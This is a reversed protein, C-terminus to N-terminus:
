TQRNQLWDRGDGPYFAFGGSNSLIVRMGGGLGPVSFSDVTTPSSRAARGPTPFRLHPMLPAAAQLLRRRRVRDHGARGPFFRGFYEADATVGARWDPVSRNGRGASRALPPKGASSIAGTSRIGSRKRGPCLPRRRQEHQRDGYVDMPRLRLRHQLLLRSSDVSTDTGVWVSLTVSQNPCRSDAPPCRTSIICGRGCPRSPSPDAQPRRHKYTGFIIDMGRKVQKRRRSNAKLAPGATLGSQLFRQLLVPVPDDDPIAVLM